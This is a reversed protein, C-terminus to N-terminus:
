GRNEIQAALDALLARDQAGLPRDPSPSRAGRSRHLTLLAWLMGPLLALPEMRMYWHGNTVMTGSWAFAIAAIAIALPLRRLLRGAEDKCAIPYDTSKQIDKVTIMGRLKFGKDKDVVLVKEIRHKHMLVKVEDLSAGTHLIVNGLTMAGGPGLANVSVLAPGGRAPWLYTPQVFAFGYREYFRRARHNDTYVTLYLEEAGRSRATDLARTRTGPLRGGALRRARTMARSGSPHNPRSNSRSSISRRWAVIGDNSADIVLQLLKANIM